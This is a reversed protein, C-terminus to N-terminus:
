EDWHFTASAIDAYSVSSANLLFGENAVAAIILAGDPGAVWRFTGRTNVPFDLLQADAVLTPGTTLEELVVATAAVDAPDAQNEVVAGGVAAAATTRQLLWRVPFDVPPTGEHGVVQDQYAVRHSVGGKIEAVGQTGIITADIATQIVGVGYRGM